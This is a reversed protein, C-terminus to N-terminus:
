TSSRKIEGQALWYFGFIFGLSFLFRFVPYKNTILATDLDSDIKARPTFLTVEIWIQHQWSLTLLQTSYVLVSVQFNVMQKLGHIEM